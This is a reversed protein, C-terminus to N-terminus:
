LLVGEGWVQGRPPSACSRTASLDPRSARAGGGGGAGGNSGARDALPHGFAPHPPGSPRRNMRNPARIVTTVRRRHLLWHTCPVLVPRVLLADVIIGVVLAFGLQRLSGLPSFLLAA